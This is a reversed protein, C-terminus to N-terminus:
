NFWINNNISVQFSVRVKEINEVGHLCMANLLVWKRLPFKIRELVRLKSFDNCVAQRQTRVIPQGIEEYYVTETEPGGADLLYLLTFDRTLDTHPGQHTGFRGNTFSVGCDFGEPHINEHVWDYFEKNIDMRTQYTVSKIEGNIILKRSKYADSLNDEPRDTDVYKLSELASTIFKKPVDPLNKLIVYTFM